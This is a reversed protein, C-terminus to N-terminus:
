FWLGKKTAETEFKRYEKYADGLGALNADIMVRVNAFVKDEWIRRAREINEASDWEIASLDGKARELLSRVTRPTVKQELEWDIRRLIEEKQLPAKQPSKSELLLSAANFQGVDDNYILNLVQGARVKKEDFGPLVKLHEGLLRAARSPVGYSWDKLEDAETKEHSEAM